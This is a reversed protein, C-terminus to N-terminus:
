ILDKTTILTYTFSNGYLDKSKNVYRMFENFDIYSKFVQCGASYGNINDSINYASARHINIGFMGTQITKSDMDLVNDKNKDRYVKVPKLRQCLATYQGKHKDVKYTSRYQDPVLIATGASNSPAKLLKLSPDTTADWMKTVWKGNEKFILVLADNFKDRQINDDLLNRIGIINLNYNGNTFFAYGLKNFLKEFDTKEILEKLKTEM